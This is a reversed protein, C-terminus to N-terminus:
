RETGGIMKELEKKCDEIWDIVPQCHERILSDNQWVVLSFLVQQEFRFFAQKRALEELRVVAMPDDIKVGAM